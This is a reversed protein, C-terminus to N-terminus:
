ILRGSNKCFEVLKPITYEEESLQIAARLQSYLTCRFVHHIVTRESQSLCLHTHIDHGFHAQSTRPQLTRHVYISSGRYHQPNKLTSNSLTKLPLQYMPWSEVYSSLTIPRYASTQTYSKNSANNIFIVKNNTSWPWVQKNMSSNFLIYNYYYKSSTAVNSLMVPYFGDADWFKWSSKM